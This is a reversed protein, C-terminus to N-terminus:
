KSCLVRTMSTTSTGAEQEMFGVHGSALQPACSTDAEEYEESSPRQGEEHRVQINPQIQCWFLYVEIPLIIKM